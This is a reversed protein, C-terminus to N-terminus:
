ANIGYLSKPAAPYLSPAVKKTLEISDVHPPMSNVANLLQQHLGSFHQELSALPAIDVRGDYRKPLLGQGFYVAQWSAPLFLGQRYESMRGGEEFLDMQSALSDPIPMNQCYRWFDSDDRSNVKYHLIIFDRVRLYENDMQRNYSDREVGSITNSPFHELLKQIAIQVLYLSTSELPELFGASLGIAICNAQWTAKRKGTTFRLKNLGATPKEEIDRLLIEEAQRDDLYSSCYVIGNGTRHQLPIRWQWGASKAAARTYPPPNKISETPVAIARDCPLWHAWNEYGTKLSQEILVGAFGSCDIFLDGAIQQDSQMVLCAIDGQKARGSDETHRRVDAVKGEIRSVGRQQAFNRLYRAYLTADLHFAYGYDACIDQPNDSPYCFKKQKAAHVAISYQDFPLAKGQQYLRLWYQYFDIGNIDHGSLGFPHFYSNQQKGWGPFQIALKYTAGTERMFENEDIGLLQNFSRLHPLTAEGVGVTGILESEVLTIAYLQPSLFRALSAATMWGSSGGGLIVVHQRATNQTTSM